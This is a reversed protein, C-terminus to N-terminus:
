RRSNEKRYQSFYVMQGLRDSARGVNGNKDTYKKMLADHSYNTCGCLLVRDRSWSEYFRTILSMVPTIKNGYNKVESEDEGIDEIYINKNLYHTPVEGTKQIEQEIQKAKVFAMKKGLGYVNMFRNLIKFTSTKGIGVAGSLIIGRDLKLKENTEYDPDNIAWKVLQKLLQEDKQYFTKIKEDPENQNKYYRYYIKKFTPWVEEFEFFQTFPKQSRQNREKVAQIKAAYDPSIEVPGPRKIQRERLNELNIEQQFKATLEEIRKRAEHAEKLEDKSLNNM